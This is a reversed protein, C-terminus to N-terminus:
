PSCDRLEVRPGAVSSTRGAADEVVLELFVEAREGPGVSDAPFGEFTASATTGVFVMPEEALQRDGTRAIVTATAGPELSATVTLATPGCPPGSVPQEWVTTPGARIDDVPPATAASPQTTDSGAAGTTAEPAVETDPPTTTAPATDAAAVAETDAAAETGVSASDGDDDDREPLAAIGGVVVLLTVAAISSGAIFTRRRVAADRRARGEAVVDRRIRDSPIDPLDDRWSM